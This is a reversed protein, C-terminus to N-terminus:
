RGNSVVKPGGANNVLISVAGFEGQVESIFRQIQSADSVDVVSTFINM